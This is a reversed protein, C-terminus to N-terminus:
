VWLERYVGAGIVFKGPTSVRSGQLGERVGGNGCLQFYARCLQKSFWVGSSMQHLLSSDGTGRLVGVALYFGAAM